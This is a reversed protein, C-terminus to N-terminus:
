GPCVGWSGLVNLLDLVDVVGDNNTDALGVFM